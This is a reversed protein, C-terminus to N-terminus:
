AEIIEIDKEQQDKKSILANTPWIITLVVWILCLIDWYYIWDIWSNIIYYQSIYIIVIWILTNIIKFRKIYTPRIVYFTLYYLFIVLLIIYFVKNLNEYDPKTIIVWKAFLYCLIWIILLFFIWFIIRRLNKMM